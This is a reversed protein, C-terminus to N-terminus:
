SQNSGHKGFRLLFESYKKKELEAIIVYRSSFSSVDAWKKYVPKGICNETVFKGAGSNQWEWISQAEDEGPNESDMSIFSHVVLEYIEEVTDQGNQRVTRYRVSGM